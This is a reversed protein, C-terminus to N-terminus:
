RGDIDGKNDSQRDDLYDSFDDVDKTIEPHVEPEETIDEPGRKLSEDKKPSEDVKLSGTRVEEPTLEKIEDEARGLTYSEDFAVRLSHLNNDLSKIAKDIREIAKEVAEVTKPENSLIAKIGAIKDKLPSMNAVVGEIVKIQEKNM